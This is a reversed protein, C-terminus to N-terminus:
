APEVLLVGPEGSSTAQIIEVVRFRQGDRDIITGLPWDPRALGVGGLSSGDRTVLEFRELVPKAEARPRGEDDGVIHFHPM